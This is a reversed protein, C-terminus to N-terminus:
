AHLGEIRRRAEALDAPTTIKLNSPDGPVTRVEFGAWHVLTADDTFAVGSAEAKAHAERLPDTRFAQPTQAFGLEERVESGDVLGDRIRLVTDTVPLVPVAADAGSRIADVVRAFLSATAFPRAADHVVVALADTVADLAARVSEQRTAGGAVVDIPVGEDFIAARADTELGAPAAVILRGVGPCAAAGAAATALITRGGLDVLAKAREADLRRGGGAALLIVDLRLAEM